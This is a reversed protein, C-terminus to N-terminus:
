VFPYRLFSDAGSAGRPLLPPDALLHGGLACCVASTHWQEAEGPVVAAAGRNTCKGNLLQHMQVAKDIGKRIEM